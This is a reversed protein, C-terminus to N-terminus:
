LEAHLEAHGAAQEIALRTQLLEGLFDDIPRLHLRHDLANVEAHVGLRFSGPVVLHRSDRRDPQLVSARGGSAGIEACPARRRRITRPSRSRPWSSGTRRTWRTFRGTM